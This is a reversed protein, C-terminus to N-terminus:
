RAKWRPPIISSAAWTSRAPGDHHAQEAIAKIHDKRDLVRHIADPIRACIPKLRAREEAERGPDGRASPSSCPSCPSPWRSRPTPRPPPWASKRAPKRHLLVADSERVLRLQGRRQLDALPMQLGLLPGHAGLGPHRRNRGVALGPLILTGPDIKPDRYRFESALDTEVALGTDHELLLKGYM